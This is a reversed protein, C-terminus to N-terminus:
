GRKMTFFRSLDHSCVKEALPAIEARPYPGTEVGIPHMGAAKAALLDHPSDGIMAVEDPALGTAECFALCMGPAPKAGYGSDYGAIFDFLQIVGARELHARAPGEADNTAVGLAFGDARLASLFPVLPVAEVQTM